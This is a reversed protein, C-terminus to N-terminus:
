REGSHRRQWAERALLEYGREPCKTEFDDSSPAAVAKQPVNVATGCRDGHVRTLGDTGPQEGPNQAIALNAPFFQRLNESRDTKIWRAGMEDSGNLLYDAAAFDEDAKKTWQRVVHLVEPSRNM